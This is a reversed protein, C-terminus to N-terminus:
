IYEQGMEAELSIMLGFRPLPSREESVQVDGSLFIAGDSRVRIQQALYALPFHGQWGLSSKVLITISGTEEEATARYVRPILDDGTLVIDRRNEQAVVRM